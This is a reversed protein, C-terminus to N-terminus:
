RRALETNVRSRSREKIFIFSSLRRPYTSVLEPEQHRHSNPRPARFFLSFLQEIDEVKMGRGHDIVSMKVEHDSTLTTLVIETGPASYKVANSVINTLVQIMRGRDADIWAVRKDLNLTLTQYRGALTPEFSRAVEEVMGQVNVAEKQL